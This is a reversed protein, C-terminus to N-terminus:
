ILVLDNRSTFVKDNSKLFAFLPPVQTLGRHRTAWRHTEPNSNQM